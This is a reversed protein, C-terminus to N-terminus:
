WCDATTMGTGTFGRAGTSTLTLNACQDNAQAGTATATLTYTSATAASITLNYVATGGSSPSTTPFIAPSGTDAGAAAAGLYSSNNSIYWREMAQALSQLDGMADARRSDQVYRGYQPVAVTGLIAIITIAILLEILSFGTERRM